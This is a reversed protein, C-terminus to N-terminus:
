VHYLSPFKRQVWEKGQSYVKLPNVLLKDGFFCVRDFKPKLWKKIRGQFRQPTLLLESIFDFTKYFKEPLWEMTLYLAGDM